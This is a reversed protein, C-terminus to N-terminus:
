QTQVKYMKKCQCFNHGSMWILRRVQLAFQHSDLFVWLDLFAGLNKQYRLFGCSKKSRLCVYSFHNFHYSYRGVCLTWCCACYKMPHQLYTLNDKIAHRVSRTKWNDIWKPVKASLAFITKSLICMYTNYKRRHGWFVNFYLGILSASCCLANFAAIFTFLM